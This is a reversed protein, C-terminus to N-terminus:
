KGGGFKNKLWDLASGFFKDSFGLWVVLGVGCIIGLVANDVEKKLEMFYQAVFIVSSIIVLVAGIWNTYPSNKVNKVM